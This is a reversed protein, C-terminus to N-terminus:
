LVYRYVYMYVIACTCVCETFLLGPTYMGFQLLLEEPLDWPLFLSTFLFKIQVLKTEMPFSIM